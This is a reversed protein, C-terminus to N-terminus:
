VMQEIILEDEPIIMGETIHLGGDRPCDDFPIDDEHDADECYCYDGRKITDAHTEPIDWEDVVIVEGDTIVLEAGFGQEEDWDLSLTLTPYQKSLEVIVEIPPGWATQFHYSTCDPSSDSSCDSVDWKTGWNNLNWDYWFPSSGSLGHGTLSENYKELEKGKPRLINWFSFEEDTIEVDVTELKGDVHKQGKMIYNSSVQAALRLQEAKDGLINLSNSVWNPVIGETKQLHKDKDKTYNM